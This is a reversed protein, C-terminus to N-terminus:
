INEVWLSVRKNMRTREKRLSVLEQFLVLQELKQSTIEAESFSKGNPTSLNDSNFNIPLFYESDLLSSVEKIRESLQHLEKIARFIAQSDGYMEQYMHYIFDEIMTQYDKMQYRAKSQIVYYLYISMSSLPIVAQVKNNPLKSMEATDHTLSSFFDRQDNIAKLLSKDVEFLDAISEVIIFPNNDIQICEATSNNFPLKQTTM